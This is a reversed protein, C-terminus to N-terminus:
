KALSSKKSRRAWKSSPTSLIPAVPVGSEFSLPAQALRIHIDPESTDPPLPTFEGQETPNHGNRQPLLNM